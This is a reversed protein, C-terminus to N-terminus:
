GIRHEIHTLRNQYQGEIRQRKM